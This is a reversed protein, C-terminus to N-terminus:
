TNVKTILSTRASSKNINNPYAAPPGGGNVGNTRVSTAAEGERTTRRLPSDKSNRSNQLPDLQSRSAHSRSAAKKRRREIARLRQEAESIRPPSESGGKAIPSYGETTAIAGSTLLSESLAAEFEEELDDEEEKKSEYAEEADWRFSSTRPQPLSGRTTTEMQISSAQASNSGQNYSFAM